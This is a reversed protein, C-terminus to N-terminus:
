IAKLAEIIADELARRNEIGVSLRVLGETVGGARLDDKSVAAHTTSMPHCALSHTGGLSVAKRFITLADIFRWAARRGGKLYITIISGPGLCQSQYIAQQPDTQRLLEPYLVRKVKKSGALVHTLHHANEAACHMRLELTEISRSVLSCATPTLITGLIDRMSKVPRLLDPDRALVAGGLLDSHGGIFKTLSYVVYDVNGLILPKQFCPGLFTNDVVVKLPQRQEAAWDALTAIPSMMLSPNAPTEIFLVGGKRCSNMAQRVKKVDSTDVTITKIGIVSCVNRFFEATCGYIPNTHIITQGPKVISLILTTIASMGSAFALGGVAGDEIQTLDHEVAVSNPTGFRGYMFVQESPLPKVNGLLIQFRRALERASGAEFTSTEYIPPVVAGFQDVLRKGADKRKM